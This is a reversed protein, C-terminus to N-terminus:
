RYEAIRAATEPDTREIRLFAEGIIEFNREVAQRLMRNTTLEDFTAERTVEIIYAGADAIDDLWQPSKPHM